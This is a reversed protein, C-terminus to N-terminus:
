AGPPRDQLEQPDPRAGSGPLGQDDLPTATGTGPIPQDTSPPVTGGGPMPEPDSGGQGAPTMRQGAGQPAAGQPMAGRPVSTSGQPTAAMQPATALAVDRGHAILAWVVGIALAIMLISWVPYWPIFAFNALMSLVAILVAIIRAWVAGSLLGFGAFVVIIGGVLHIWGWTTADAKFTYDEDLVYFEDELIGTIGAIIHFGGILVMLIAAFTIFGVALGSISKGSTQQENM